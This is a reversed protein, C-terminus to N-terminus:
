SGKAAAIAADARAIIRGVGEDDLWGALYLLDAVTLRERMFQCNAIVWRTLDETLPPDLEDFRM